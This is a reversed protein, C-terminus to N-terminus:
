KQCQRTATELSRAGDKGVVYRLWRWWLIPIVSTLPLLLRLHVSNEPRTSRASTTPPSPLQGVTCMVDDVGHARHRSLPYFSPPQLLSVNHSSSLYWRYQLCPQLVLVVLIMLGSMCVCVHV